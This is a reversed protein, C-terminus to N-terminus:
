RILTPATLGLVVVTYPELERPGIGTAGGCRNVAGLMTVVLVLGDVLLAAGCTAPMAARSISRNGLYELSSMM